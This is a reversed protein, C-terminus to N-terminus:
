SPAKTELQHLCMSNHGHEKGHQMMAMILSDANGQAQMAWLATRIGIGAGERVSMTRGTEGPEWEVMALFSLGAGECKKALEMLVPAVEKDYFAEQETM